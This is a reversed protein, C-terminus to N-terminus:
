CTSPTIAVPTVVSGLVLSDSVSTALKELFLPGHQILVHQSCDHMVHISTILIVTCMFVSLCFLLLEASTHKDALALKEPAVKHYM